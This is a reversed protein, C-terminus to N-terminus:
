AAYLQSLEACAICNEKECRGAFQGAFSHHIIYIKVQKTQKVSKITDVLPM